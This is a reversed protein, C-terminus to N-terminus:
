SNKIEPVSFWYLDTSFVITTNPNPSTQKFCGAKYLFTSASRSGQPHVVFWQSQTWPILKRWLMNWIILGEDFPCSWNEKTLRCDASSRTCHQLASSLDPSTFLIICPGWARSMSVLPSPVIRPCTAWSRPSLYRLESQPSSAAIQLPSNSTVTESM